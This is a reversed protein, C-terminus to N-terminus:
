KSASVACADSARVTPSDVNCIKCEDRGGSPRVCSSDSM